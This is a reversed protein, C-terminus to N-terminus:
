RALANGKEKWEKLGGKYDLVMYGLASLKKAATTSATCLFSGCYVVVRTDKKLMRGASEKAIEGVPFNVAGDIHGERFSDEGLVDLLVYEDESERLEVFQAYSIERVGNKETAIAAIRDFAGARPAGMCGAIGAALAAALVFSGHRTM